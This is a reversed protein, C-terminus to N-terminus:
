MGNYGSLCSEESDGVGGITNVDVFKSIGEVNVDLHNIYIVILLAGLM